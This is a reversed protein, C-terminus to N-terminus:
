HIALLGFFLCNADNTELSICILVVIVVQETSTLNAIIKFFFIAFTQLSISFSSTEQM